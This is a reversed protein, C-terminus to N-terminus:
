SYITQFCCCHGHERQAHTPYSKSRPAFGHPFNRLSAWKRVLKTAGQQIQCHQSRQTGITYPLLKFHVIFNFLISVDDLIVFFRTDIGLHSHKKLFAQRACVAELVEDM